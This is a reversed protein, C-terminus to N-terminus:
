VKCCWPKGVITQIYFFPLYKWCRSLHLINVCKVVLCIFIMHYEEPIDQHGVKWGASRLRFLLKNQYLSWVFTITTGLCFLYLNVDRCAAIRSWATLFCGATVVGIIECLMIKSNWCSVRAPRYINTEPVSFAGTFGFM